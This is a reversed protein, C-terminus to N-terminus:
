IASVRASVGTLLSLLHPLQRVRVPCDGRGSDGRSRRQAELRAEIEAESIQGDKDTDIEDIATQLAMCAKLEKDDLQGDANSDYLGMAKVAAGKADLEPAVVRKPGGCGASVLLMVFVSLLIAPQRQNLTIHDSQM